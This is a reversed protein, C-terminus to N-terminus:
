AVTEVLICEVQITCIVRAHVYIFINNLNISKRKLCIKSFNSYTM